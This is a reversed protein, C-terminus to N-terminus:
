ILQMTEMVANFDQRVQDTPALYGVSFVIANNSHLVAVADNEYLGTHHYWVAQKGDVTTPRSARDDVLLQWNSRPDSELWQQLTKDQVPYTTITITPPGEGGVPAQYGKPLFVLVQGGWERGADAIEFIDYRDTPYNFAIGIYEDTYDHTSQPAQPMPTQPAPTGRGDLKGVLYQAGVYAAGALVLVVVGGIAVVKNMKMMIDFGALNYVGSSGTKCRTRMLGM